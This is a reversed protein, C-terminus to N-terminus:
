ARLEMYFASRTRGLAVQLWPQSFHGIRQNLEQDYVHKPESWFYDLRPIHVFGLKEYFGRARLISIAYINARGTNNIEDRVAHFLESGVGTKQLDPDVFFWRVQGFTWWDWPLRSEKFNLRALEFGGMGVMRGHDEAVLLHLTNRRLESLLNDPEQAWKIWKNAIADPSLGGTSKRTRKTCSIFIESARQGHQEPDFRVIKM